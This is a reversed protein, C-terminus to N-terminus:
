TRQRPSIKSAMLDRVDFFLNLGYLLILFVSCAIAVNFGDCWGGFSGSPCKGGGGFVILGFQVCWAIGFGIDYMILKKLRSRALSWLQELRLGYAHNRRTPRRPSQASRASPHSPSYMSPSSGLDPDTHPYPYFSSDDPPLDPEPDPERGGGLMRPDIILNVQVDGMGPMGMGKKGKKNKKNKGKGSPGNMGMQVPLMMMGPPLQTYGDTEKDRGGCCKCYRRILFIYSHVLFTLVSVVYLSYTGIKHAPPPSPTNPPLKIFLAPYISAVGAVLACLGQGVRAAVRKKPGVTILKGREDVSGIADDTM